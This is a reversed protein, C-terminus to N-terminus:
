RVIAVVAGLALAAVAFVGALTWAVIEMIDTQNALENLQENQEMWQTHIRDRERRASEVQEVAIDYAQQLASAANRLSTVQVTLAAFQRDRLRLDADMRLLEQYDSLDFCWYDPNCQTGAPIRYRQYTQAQATTPLLILSFVLLLNIFTRMYM